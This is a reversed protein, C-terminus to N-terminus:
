ENSVSSGGLMGAPRRCRRGGICQRWQRFRGFRLAASLPRNGRRSQPHAHKAARCPWPRDAHRPVPRRRRVLHQPLRAGDQHRLRRPDIVGVHGANVLLREGPALDREVVEGSLDLLVMGPGTIKAPYLRRRRIPRRRFAAALRDGADGRDGRCSFDGQPLDGVTGRAPPAAHDHRSFAPSLSM